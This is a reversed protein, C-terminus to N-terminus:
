LFLVVGFTVGVVGLILGFMRWGFGDIDADVPTSRAWLWFFFAFVVWFIIGVFNM